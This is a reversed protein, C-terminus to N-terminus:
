YIKGTVEPEVVMLIVAELILDVLIMGMMAV